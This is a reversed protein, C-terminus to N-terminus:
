KNEKKETAKITPTAIPKAKTVIEVCGDIKSDKLRRRWNKDLPTGDRDVSVTISNGKAVGHLPRQTMVRLEITKNSMTPMVKTEYFEPTIM